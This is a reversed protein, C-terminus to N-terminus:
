SRMARLLNTFLRQAQWVVKGNPKNKPKDKPKDEPKDKTQGVRVLEEIMDVCRITGGRESQLAELLPPPIPNAELWKLLRRRQQEENEEFSVFPVFRDDINLACMGAHPGRYLAIVPTGLALSDMIQLFGNSVLSACSAQMLGYINADSQSPLAVYQHAPVGAEELMEVARAPSPSVIIIFVASVDELSSLVEIGRWLVDDSYAILTLWRQDKLHSPIPLEEKPTVAEIFPPILRYPPGIKVDEGWFSELGYLLLLDVGESIPKMWNNYFQDLVVFPCDVLKAGEYFPMSFSFPGEGMVIVQPNMSKFFQRAVEQSPAHAAHNLAVFEVAGLAQEVKPDDIMPGANCIIPKWGRRHFEVALRLARIFAGAVIPNWLTYTIFVVVPGEPENRLSTEDQMFKM